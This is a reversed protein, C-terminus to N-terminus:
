LSPLEKGATLCTRESPLPDQVIQGHKNSPYFCFYHPQHVYWSGTGGPTVTNSSTQHQQINPTSTATPPLAAAWRKISQHPPSSVPSLWGALCGHAHSRAGHAYNPQLQLLQQSTLARECLLPSISRFIGRGQAFNMDRPSLALLPLQNPQYWNRNQEDYGIM